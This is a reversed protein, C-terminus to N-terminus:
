ETLRLVSMLEAAQANSLFVAENTNVDVLTNGSLRYVARSGDEATFTITCGKSRNTSASETQIGDTNNANAPCNENVAFDESADRGNGDADAFLSHIVSFMEAVAWRDTVKGDHEAPFLGDNQVEVAIYPCASNQHAEGSPEGSMPSRDSTEGAPIMAPLNMVSCLAAILCVPICLALARSRNRKRERIRKESRRFVEQTCENLERM